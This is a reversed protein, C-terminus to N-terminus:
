RLLGYAIVGILVLVLVAIPVASSGSRTDIVEQGPEPPPYMELEGIAIRHAVEQAKDARVLERAIEADVGLEAAIADASQGADRLEIFHRVAADDMSDDSVEQAASRLALFRNDLPPQSMSGATSCAAATARCRAPRPTSTRSCGGPRGRAWRESWRTSTRRCRPGSALMDGTVELHFQVGYAARGWRFAQNPYAPSGALRVAGTPLDFTDGHWQLTPLERPLGALVPDGAGEDTLTVPLVGVEPTEGTHVRAGLSSALLQVGLCAGWFGTGAAVAERILRKEDVLWPHEHEDNVSMPGGMAVILDFDRWDPLADGEDLEVRHISAGRDLLVDEYIGPPECAIHQLVLAKM